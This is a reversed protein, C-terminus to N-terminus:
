PTSVLGLPHSIWIGLDAKQWDDEGGDAIGNGNVDELYDPVGDGDTDIPNGSADLAVYHYGIDVVSNTEKTENTQTTFHYLGIVDATVSGTNILFSNSAQYWDGAPGSQWTFSNTVQDHTGSMILRQAGNVFGNYDCYTINTNGSSYDNMQIATGDFVCNEIWVQWYLSGSHIAYVNGGHMTCNRWFLGASVPDAGVNIVRDFLCNTANIGLWYGELSGSYFESNNARINLQAYYDRFHNPDTVLAYCHTFNANIQAFYSSNGVTAIGALYGKLTWNGNGEQVTNYRAFVCPASFTGNFINTKDNSLAIGYGNGSITEFYGAATGASFTLNANATVGGFCDDLPDYHYGLDLAAANTDRPVYPVFNTDASFTAGSYIVPPYTTKKRIEALLNANIDATGFNHYLSNTPLYYSGAGATQFVSSSTVLVHNTASIGTTGLNGKIICNTLYVSGNGDLWDVFDTTDATLQEADVTIGQQATIVDSCDSFLDNYLSTDLWASVPVTCHIFQCDSIVSTGSFFDIATGAYLFRLDHLNFSDAGDPEFYDGSGVTPIGSSGSYIEGVTNDDSSTFVAPRYPGTKCTIGDGIFDIVSSDANVFKVVTGGEITTLGLWVYGDIVYTTDGRFTFNNTSSVINYDLVVGLQKDLDAKAVQLSKKTSQAYHIPPLLRSASLRRLASDPVVVSATTAPAPLSAFEQSMAQVPVEEILFTRGQIQTWTKCVSIHKKQSTPLQPTGSPPAISFAKGRVMTMAGFQLTSDTLTMTPSAASGSSNGSNPPAYMVLNSGTQEPAPTDFFETLLEIRSNESSMGFAEPAPPQERFLLDSEFGSKRYTCVLDAAFDTFANTYIVQNGSPLIQGVSHKLEAIMVSNTGDFYAIELPRSKLRHQGDPTALEIVGDYIDYPFYVQHQGNTAAGGGQPGAQILEQSDLWQGNKLYHMGTAMEVYRHVHPIFDGSPGPEYATREWVSSDADRDVEVYPTTQPVNTVSQAALGMSSVFLLSAVLLTRM